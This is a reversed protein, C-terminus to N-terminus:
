RRSRYGSPTCSTSATYTDGRSVPTYRTLLPAVRPLAIRNYRTSRLAHRMGSVVNSTTTAVTTCVRSIRGFASAPRRTVAPATRGPPRSTAGRVEGPDVKEVGANPAPQPRPGRTGA